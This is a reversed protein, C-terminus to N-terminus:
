RHSASPLRVEVQQGPQGDVGEAVGVRLHQTRDGRLQGGEAVHRVEEGRGGLDGEGLAEGAEGGHVSGAELRPHEEGVGARLGVLCAELDGAAGAPGAQDGHLAGEM